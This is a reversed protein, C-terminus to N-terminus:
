KILAQPLESYIGKLENWLPHEMTESGTMKSSTEELKDSYYQIIAFVDSPESIIAGAKSFAIQESAKGINIRNETLSLSGNPSGWEEDATKDDQRDNEWDCVICIEFVGRNSLTPYGCGPCTFIKLNQRLIYEDFV